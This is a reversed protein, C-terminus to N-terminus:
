LQKLFNNSDWKCTFQRLRITLRCWTELANILQYTRSRASIWKSSERNLRKRLFNDFFSLMSFSYPSTKNLKELIVSTNFSYIINHVLNYIHFNHTRSPYRTNIGSWLTQLYSIEFRTQFLKLWLIEVRWNLCFLLWAPSFCVFFLEISFYCSSTKPSQTCMMMLSKLVPYFLSQSTNRLAMQMTLQLLFLAPEILFHRSVCRGHSPLLARAQSIYPIYNRACVM